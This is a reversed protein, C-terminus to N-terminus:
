DSTDGRGMWPRVTVTSQAPEDPDLQADIRRKTPPDGSVDQVHPADEIVRPEFVQQLGLAVANLIAGSSTRRLKMVRLSPVLEEATEVPTPSGPPSHSDPASDSDTAPTSGQNSTEDSPAETGESSMHEGYRYFQTFFRHMRFINRLLTSCNQPSM